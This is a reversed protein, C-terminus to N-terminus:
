PSGYEQGLAQRIAHTYYDAVTQHIVPDTIHFYPRHKRSQAHDWLNMESRNNSFKQFYGKTAGEFAVHEFGGQDFMFPTNSDKIKQLTHEITIKNQYIAMELDFFEIFYEKLINLQRDDFPTTVQSATPYSFSAWGDKWRKEGRTVATCQVIIYQAGAALAQDVQRAILLNSAAVQSLNVVPFREGLIDTWCTGYSPDSVGFSDSCIYIM